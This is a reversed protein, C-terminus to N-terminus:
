WLHKDPHSSRNWLINSCSIIKMHNTSHHGLSMCQVLPSDEWYECGPLFHRRGFDVRLLANMTPGRQYWSQLSMQTSHHFVKQSENSPSVDVLCSGCHPSHECAQIGELDCTYISHYWSCLSGCIWRCSLYRLEASWFLIFINFPWLTVIFFTITVGSIPIFKIYSQIKIYRHCNSIWYIPTM